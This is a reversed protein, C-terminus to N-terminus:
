KKVLQKKKKTLFNKEKAKENKNQIKEFEKRAQQAEAFIEVLLKDDSNELCNQLTTLIKKFQQIEILLSTANSLMIDKWLNPNSGALRTFDKFGNGTFNLLAPYNPNKQLQYMYSYALLQPFHSTMGLIEDHQESDMMKIHAGMSEWFATTIDIAATDTKKTPTLIATRNVFLDNAAATLGSKESGAIPHGPVFQRFKKGLINEAQTIIDTKISGVDTIVTSAKLTKHIDQLVTAFRDIPVCIVVLDADKVALVPNEAYEDIINLDYAQKTRDSDIDFGIIRQCFKTTKIARAISAGILGLGLITLRKIM